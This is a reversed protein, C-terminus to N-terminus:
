QDSSSATAPTAVGSFPIWFTLWSISSERTRPTMPGQTEYIARSSIGRVLPTGKARILEDVVFLQRVRDTGAQKSRASLSRGLPGLLKKRIAGGSRRCPAAM